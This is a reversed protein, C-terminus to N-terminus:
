LKNLEEETSEISKRPSLISPEIDQLPPKIKTDLKGESTNVHDFSEEKSEEKTINEKQM